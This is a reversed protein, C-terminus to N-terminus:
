CVGVLDDGLISSAGSIISCELCSRVCATAIGVPIQRALILQSFKVLHLYKSKAVKYIEGTPTGGLVIGVVRPAPVEASAVLGVVSLLGWVM